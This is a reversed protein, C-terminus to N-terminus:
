LGLTKLGLNALLCDYPACWIKSCVKCTFQQVKELITTDKLQHPDWVARAYELHPCIMSVYILRTIEPDTHSYFNKYMLGVLKRAKTAIHEIHRSWQLDSSLIPGLYKFFEVREVSDQRLFLPPLQAAISCTHNKRTLWMNKCKAINFRLYHGSVSNHIANVDDQFCRHDNDNSIPKFLLM